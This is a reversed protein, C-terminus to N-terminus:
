SRLILFHPKVQCLHHCQRLGSRMNPRGFSLAATKSAPSYLLIAFFNFHLPRPRLRLLLDYLIAFQKVQISNSVYTFAFLLHALIPLLLVNPLKSIPTTKLVIAVTNTALFFLMKKVHHYKKLLRSISVQVSCLLAINQLNEYLKCVQQVALRNTYNTSFIIHEQGFFNLLPAVLNM